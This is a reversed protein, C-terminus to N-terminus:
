SRHLIAAVAGDWDESCCWIEFLASSLRLRKALPLALATAACVRGNLCLRPWWRGVRRNRTSELYAAQCSQQVEDAICPPPTLHSAPQWGPLLNPLADATAVRKVSGVADCLHVQCEARPAPM